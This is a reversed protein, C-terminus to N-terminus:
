NIALVCDAFFSTEEFNAISTVDITSGNVDTTSISMTPGTIIRIYGVYLPTKDSIKIMTTPCVIRITDGTSEFLAKAWAVFSSITFPTPDNNYVTLQFRGQYTHSSLTLPKVDSYAWTLAHSYIKKTSGGEGDALRKLWYEASTRVNSDVPTEGCLAALFNDLHTQIMNPDAAGRLGGRLERVEDLLDRVDRLDEPTLPEREEEPTEERIEEESEEAEKLLDIEELNKEEESM